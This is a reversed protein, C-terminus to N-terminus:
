RTGGVMRRRLRWWLLVWFNKGIMGGQGFRNGEIRQYIASRSVGEDAAIANISLGSLIRRWTRRELDNLNVYFRSDDLWPFPLPPEPGVDQWQPAFLLVPRGNRRGAGVREQRGNFTRLCSFHLSYEPNVLDLIANVLNRTSFWRGSWTWALVLAELM